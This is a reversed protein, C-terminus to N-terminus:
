SLNALSLDVADKAFDDAGRCSFLLYTGPGYSLILDHLTIKGSSNLLTPDIRYRRFIDENENKRYIICFETTSGYRINESCGQKFYLSHDYIIDGELHNRLVGIDTSRGPFGIPKSQKKKVYDLFKIGSSTYEKSNDNNKFLSYGKTYINSINLIDRFGVYLGYGPEIFTIIKTNPPVRFKKNIMKGHAVVATINNTYFDQKAELQQSNFILNKFKRLDNYDGLLRRNNKPLYAPHINYKQRCGKGSLWECFEVDECKPSGTTKKLRSCNIQNKTFMGPYLKDSVQKIERPTELVNSFVIDTRLENKRKYEEVDDYIDLIKKLKEETLEINDTPLYDEVKIKSM